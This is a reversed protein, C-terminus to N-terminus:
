DLFAGHSIPTFPCEPSVSAIFHFLRPRRAVHRKQCHLGVPFNVHVSLLYREDLIARAPLIDDFDMDLQDQFLLPLLPANDTGSLLAHIPHSHIFLRMYKTGGRPIAPIMM